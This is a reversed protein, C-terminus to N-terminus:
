YPLHNDFLITPTDPAKLVVFSACRHTDTRLHMQDGAERQLLLAFDSAVNMTARQTLDLLISSVDGSHAGLDVGNIINAKNERAELKAAERDSAVDSLTYIDSSCVDSSWDSIRM